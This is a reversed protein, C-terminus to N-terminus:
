RVKRAAYQFVFSHYYQLASIVTLGIALIACVLEALTWVPASSLDSIWVLLNGQSLSHYPNLILLTLYGIQCLTKIKGLFSVPLDLQYELALQRLSPVFIERGILILAWLFFIKGIALLAIVVSCILFKDAIPDLIRGLNTVQSYRRALYGDFFDTVSFLLFLVALVANLWPLNLPLLYVILLPLLLPSLVLRILTLITSATIPSQM